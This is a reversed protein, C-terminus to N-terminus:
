LNVEVVDSGRVVANLTRKAPLSLVRVEQNLSGAEQVTGRAWVTLDRSHLKIKVQAGARVLPVLDIQTRLVPQNEILVARAEYTSWPLAPQALIERYQRIPNLALDVTRVDVFDASLTTGPLIRSKAFAIRTPASFRVALESEVSTSEIRGHARFTAHGRGDDGLYSVSLPQEIIPGRRWEIGAIEVQAGPYRSSLEERILAEPSAAHSAGAIPFAAVLAAILWTRPTTSKM